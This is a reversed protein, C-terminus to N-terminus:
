ESGQGGQSPQHLASLLCRGSNNTTVGRQALIATSDGSILATILVVAPCRPVMSDFTSFPQLLHLGSPCINFVSHSLSVSRSSPAVTLPRSCHSASFTRWLSQSASPILILEAKVLPGWLTSVDACRILDLWATILTKVDRPFFDGSITPLSAMNSFGRGATRHLDPGDLHHFHAEASIRPDSQCMHQGTLPGFIEGEGGGGREGGRCREWPKRGHNIIVTYDNGDAQWAVPYVLVLFLLCCSFLFFSFFFFLLSKERWCLCMEEEGGGTRECDGMLGFWFLQLTVKRKRGVPSYDLM